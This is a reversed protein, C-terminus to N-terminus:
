FQKNLKDDKFMTKFKQTCPTQMRPTCAEEAEEISKIRTKESCLTIGRVKIQDGNELIDLYKSLNERFERVTIKEM